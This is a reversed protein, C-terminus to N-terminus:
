FEKNKFIETTQDNLLVWLSYVGLATGFPIEILDICSLILTLVRAWQCRKLLGIGAIIDPISFIVLVAAIISGVMSTIAIAEPDRSLLGGGAVAIFVIIAIMIGLIGSAIRLIAALTIHQEMRM